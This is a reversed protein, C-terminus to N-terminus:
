PITIDLFVGTEDAKWRAMIRTECRSALTASEIQLSYTIQNCSSDDLWTMYSVGVNQHAKVAGIAPQLTFASKDMLAHVGRGGMAVMAPDSHINLFQYSYEGADPHLAFCSLALCLLMAMSIIKSLKM